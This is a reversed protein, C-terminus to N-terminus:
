RKRFMDKFTGILLRHRNAKEKETLTIAPNVIMTFEEQFCENCASEGYRSHEAQEAACYFCKKM